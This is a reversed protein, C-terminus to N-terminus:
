KQLKNRAGLIVNGIQDIIPNWVLHHTSSAYDIYDFGRQKAEKELKSKDLAGKACGHITPWLETLYEAAAGKDGRKKRLAIEMIRKVKEKEPQQSMIILRISPETILNRFIIQTLEVRKDQRVRGVKTGPLTEPYIRQFRM